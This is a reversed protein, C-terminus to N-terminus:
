VADNRQKPTFRPVWRPVEGCYQEYAKGMKRCPAPEEQILVWVHFVMALLVAYALLTTSRFLASEGLLVTLVSIYMPNRTYKSPGRLVLQKPMDIPAPTGGGFLAFNLAWWLYGAAGVAILAIARAAAANWETPRHRLAPYLVFLSLWVFVTGPLLVTFVLLKLLIMYIASDNESKV